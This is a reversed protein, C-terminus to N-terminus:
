PEEEEFSPIEVHFEPSPDSDTELAFVLVANQKLKLTTPTEDNTQVARWGAALDRPNRPMGFVVHCPKGAAPVPTTDSLSPDAQLLGRPYREHLGDLLQTSISDFSALRDVFLFLSHLGYKFGCRRRHPRQCHDAPTRLPTM